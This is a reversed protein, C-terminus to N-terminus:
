QDKPNKQAEEMMKKLKEIGEQSNTSDPLIKLLNGADGPTMTKFEKKMTDVARSCMLGTILIIAPVATLILSAVRAAKERCGLFSKLAHYLMWLGYLTVALSILGGAGHATGAALGLLAKVPMIVLLTSSVRLNKNFDTSGGCLASIILIFIGGIFLAMFAGLVSGFFSLIGIGGGLVAGLTGTLIGMGTLGWIFNILGTMIGFIVAALISEGAGAAGDMRSYYEGPRTLSLVSNKFFEQISFTNQPM